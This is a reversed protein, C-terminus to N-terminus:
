MWFADVVVGFTARLTGLEERTENQMGLEDVFQLEKSFDPVSVLEAYIAVPSRRGAMNSSLVNRVQKMGAGNIRTPIM